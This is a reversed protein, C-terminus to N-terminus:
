SCEFALIGTNTDSCPTPNLAFVGHAQVKFATYYDNSDCGRETFVDYVIGPLNYSNLSYAMRDATLNVANAAGLPYWAKSVLAAATKHILFSTAPAITEVNFLDFYIRNRLDGMRNVNGKGDANAFDAMRNYVLQFLNNGSIAYPNKFQNIIGVQALYGWINDNWSLAPITTVAAAVTGPAGTFANTGANALLGTLVYQAAAEDLLKMASALNYAISKQADITRERYVRDFVKFPVEGMCVIEYEKCQPTADTGGITCDDSCTDVSLACTTLWELSVVRKKDKVQLEGLNVQQNELVAKAAEAKAILDINQIPDVWREDAMAQVTALYGCDIHAIESM